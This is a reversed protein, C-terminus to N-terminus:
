NSRNQDRLRDVQAQATAVRAQMIRKAERALELQREMEQRAALLRAREEIIRDIVGPM